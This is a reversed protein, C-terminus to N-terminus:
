LVEVAADVALDAAQALLELAIRAPWAQELGRPAVAIHKCGVDLQQWRSALMRKVGLVMPPWSTAVISSATSSAWAPAMMTRWIVGSTICGSAARWRSSRMAPM